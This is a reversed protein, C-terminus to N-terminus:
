IENNSSLSTELAPSGATNSSNVVHFRIRIGNVVEKRM